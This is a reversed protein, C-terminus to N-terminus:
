GASGTSAPAPGSTDTEAPVIDARGTSRRASPATRRTVAEPKSGPEAPSTACHTTVLSPARDHTLRNGTWNSPLPTARKWYTSRSVILVLPVVPMAQPRREGQASRTTASAATGGTDVGM